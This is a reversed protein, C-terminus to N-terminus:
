ENKKKRSIFELQERSYTRFGDNIDVKYIRKSFRGSEANLILGFQGKYEGDIIKVRDLFRLNNMKRLHTKLLIM